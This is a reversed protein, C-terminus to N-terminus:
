QGTNQVPFTIVNSVFTSQAITFPAAPDTALGTNLHVLVKFVGVMGTALSATIVDATSGGAQAYLFQADTPETVPGNVPYPVGTLILPVVDPNDLKPWGLGTAYVYLFEGPIAPNADTVPAGEVNACCTTGPGFATIVLTSGSNAVASFPIGNGDPGEVRAKIVMRSFEGSPEATVRFDQNVLAVLADRVTFITDSAQVTYSYTRDEITVTAVDNATISGQVDVIGTARSSGHFVVGPARGGVGNQTYLGPNAPVITVAVPTSVTISGDPNESRVYGSISTSSFVEWPIQTNIQTPSVYFLPAPIGNFYVRTGGLKTPLQPQSADASATNASLPVDGATIVVNTGPAVSAADGGGALTSGSATAFTQSNTSQTAALTVNNGDLGGQRATLVVLYNTLDATAIVSPDGVNNNVSNIATVLAQVVTTILDGDKVTYTYDAGNITITVVDGAAIGNTGATIAITARAQITLSASNSVAQYPLISPALSYVMVRRNFTDAVYLNTGDWALSTPTRLSNAADSAQNVTGGIQGLIEDAMLGNQAPFNEFVLVRDNGGDAIFLRNGAPLAFRPFNLTANCRASYVPNGNADTGIQDPCLVASEQGTTTNVITYGNNAAGSTFDPQGVVVNAAQGNTTPISNWLLVRNYGLDTVALRVGDSAVAVPNLMTSATASNTQQTLDQNVTTTFNPVGLVVDAAQGNTTPIRNWILVRNNQTDAVYLKGNQIWVGQPGRMSSASPTDGPVVASTFNAQGLVVDAPTNNVAPIRNWILVRNHNTDAVVVRVGDSAVATPLRLSTRTAAITETTTIFDSQGLVSTAQGRCVPCNRDFPLEATPPLIMTSLGQYILVRHNSPVAGVRNADAVFLTDAAYAIGSAAGLIVDSSGPDQATFSTQGIVMRAAQGTAFHLNSQAFAAAACLSVLTIFKM